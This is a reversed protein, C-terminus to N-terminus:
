NMVKRYTIEVGLYKGGTPHINFHNIQLTSESYTCAIIWGWTDEGAAYSGELSFGNAMSEGELHMIEEKMHWQDLWSGQYNNKASSYNILLIGKYSKEEVVHDYELLISTNDIAYNIKATSSNSSFLEDPKLYIKKTGEWKGILQAFIPASIETM